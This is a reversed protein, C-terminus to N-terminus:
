RVIGSPLAGEPLYPTFETLEPFTPYLRKKECITYGSVVPLANRFISKGETVPSCHTLNCTEWLSSAIVYKALLELTRYQSPHSNFGVM